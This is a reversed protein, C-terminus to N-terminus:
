NESSDQVTSKKRFGKKREYIMISIKKQEERTKHAKLFDCQKPNEHRM